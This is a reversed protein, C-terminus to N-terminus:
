RQKLPFIKLTEAHVPEPIKSFKIYMFKMKKKTGFHTDKLEM